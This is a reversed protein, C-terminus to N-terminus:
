STPFLVTCCVWIFFSSFFLLPLAPALSVSFLSMCVGGGGFVGLLVLLQKNSFIFM